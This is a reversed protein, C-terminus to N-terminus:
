LQLNCLRHHHLIRLKSRNRQRLKATEAHAQADVIEAGSIRRQTIEITKRDIRQLDIARKNRAHIRSILVQLDHFRDNRECPIESHLKDTFTDLTFLLQILKPRQLALIPLAEQEGLREFNGVSVEEDEVACM